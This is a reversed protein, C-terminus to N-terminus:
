GYGTLSPKRIGGLPYRAVLAVDSHMICGYYHHMILLWAAQPQKSCILFIQSTLVTSLKGRSTITSEPAPILKFFVLYFCGLKM